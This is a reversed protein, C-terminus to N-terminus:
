CEILCSLLHDKTDSLATIASYALCSELWVGLQPLGVVQEKKKDVGQNAHNLFSLVILLACQVSVGLKEVRHNLSMRAKFVAELM